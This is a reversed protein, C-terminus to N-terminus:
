VDPDKAIVVKITYVCIPKIEHHLLKQGQFFNQSILIKNFNLRKSKKKRNYFYSFVVLNQFKKFKNFKFCSINEFQCCNKCFEFIIGSSKKIEM